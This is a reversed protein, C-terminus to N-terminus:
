RKRSANSTVCLKVLKPRQRSRALSQVLADRPVAACPDLSPFSRWERAFALPAQAARAPCAPVNLAPNLPSLQLRILVGSITVTNTCDM